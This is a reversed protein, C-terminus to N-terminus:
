QQLLQPTEAAAFFCLGLCIREGEGRTGYNYFVQFLGKFALAKWTLPDARIDM